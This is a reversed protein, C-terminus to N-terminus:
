RFERVRGATEFRRFMGYTFTDRQKVRFEPPGKKPHIFTDRWEVVIREPVLIDFRSPAYASEVHVMVLPQAAAPHPAALEWVSRWLRATTADIWLQGQSALRANGFESPLQPLLRMQRHPTPSTQRYALQIVDRGAIQERGAIEVHFGRRLDDPSGQNITFGRVHRNFEYRATERDITALEEDLSGAESASALLELAREHRRKVTRGDVARVDRYETTEVDGDRRSSYVLLDSEIRRRKEVKGKENYLEILRTEDAVLDAFARRYEEVAALHRALLADVDQEQRLDVSTAYSQSQVAAVHGAALVLLLAIAIRLKSIREGM